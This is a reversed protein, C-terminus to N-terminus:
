KKKYCLISCSFIQQRVGLLRKLFKIHVREIDPGKHFGWVESGYNLIPNIMSDFLKVKDSINM